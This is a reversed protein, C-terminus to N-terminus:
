SRWDEPLTGTAYRAMGRPTKYGTGRSQPGNPVLRDTEEAGAVRESVLRYVGPELRAILGIEVMRQLTTRVTSPRTLEGLDALQRGIDRPTWTRQPRQSMLGVIADRRDDASWSSAPSSSDNRAVPTANGHKSSKGPSGHDKTLFARLQRLTTEELELEKRSSAIQELDADIEEVSLSSKLTKLLPGKTM